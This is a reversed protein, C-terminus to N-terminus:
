RPALQYASTTPRSKQLDYLYISSGVTGIPTRQRLWEYSGPRIYLDQLLTVSIAGICDMREREDKDWTKPLYESRIGYYQPDASGFYDLCVPGPRQDMYVKLKKLDQGWDVNSDLLYRPGAARGGVAANFFGLYEPYVALTEAMQMTVLIGAVALFRRAPLVSALAAVGLVYLFPYVPLLHRVGLNIRSTLTVGFYVLPAAALAVWVFSERPRRWLAPLNWLGIGVALVALLLAALPSKVVFVTPFYYWWGTASVQGLLFAAHGESNHDLVTRLGTFYTHAPLTFGRITEPGVHIPRGRLVRWSEPAYMVAVVMVAVVAAGLLVAASRAAGRWAPLCLAWHLVLLAPLLPALIIMSFKAALALGTALTAWGARAPSPLTWYNVWLVVALFYLLASAMDTTIYRGHAILNPDLACLWVAPLAVLVGFFRRTAWAVSVALLVSLLMTPLRGFLLMRDADVPGKYLFARAFESQDILLREDAPLPPRLLFLTAASLLKQLPPHEVNLSFDGTKWYRYGAALHVGEDFTQSEQRVSSIQLLVMLFIPVAALLRFHKELFAHL